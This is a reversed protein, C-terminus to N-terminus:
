RAAMFQLPEFHFLQISSPGRFLELSAHRRGARTVLALVFRRDAGWLRREAATILFRRKTGTIGKVEVKLTLGRRTCHLDYGQKEGSVNRVAWERARFYRMVHQVAAREVRRNAEWSGFGGGKSRRAIESGVAQHERRVHVDAVRLLRQADLRDIHYLTRIPGPKLAPITAIRADLNKLPRVKVGIKRVPELILDRYYGRRRLAIVRALGVLENRDTQYALIIDGRKARDLAPVQESSGWKRPRGDVFFDEWDGYVVQYALKRSNCKYLWYM